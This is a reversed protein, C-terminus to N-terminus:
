IKELMKQLKTIDIQHEKEFRVHVAGNGKIEIQGIAVGSKILPIKQPSPAEKVDPNGAAEILMKVALKTNRKPRGPVMDVAKKIVDTKNVLLAKTIVNVQRHTVEFPFEFADIVETPLSGAKIYRTMMSKDVGLHEALETQNSFLRKELARLYMLGQEIGSLDQRNRNERDLYEFLKKDNVEEIIARVPLMATKCAMNRRHGYIIEFFGEKTPHKRVLIPEINGKSSNIEAVFDHFEKSHFNSAHRNAWESDLVKDPDLLLVRPDNEIEELKSKLGSIEDTAAGLKKENTENIESLETVKANAKRLDDTFEMVAGPGTTKRRSIIQEKTPSETKGLEDLKKNLGDIKESRNTAM